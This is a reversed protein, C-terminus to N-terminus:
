AAVHLMNLGFFNEVMPDAGNAVLTEIADINGKFSALHLATFEDHFTRDNVWKDTEIQTAFQKERALEILQLVKGPVLKAAAHHLLTFGKDDILHIMKVSSRRILDELSLNDRAELAEMLANWDFSNRSSSNNIENHNSIEDM